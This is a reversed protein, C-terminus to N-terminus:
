PTSSSSRRRWPPGPGCGPWWRSTTATGDDARDEAAFALPLWFSVEPGVFRFERPLVGVITHPVGNVRLQKGIAEDQGAFLRQWLGYGLVVKQEQGPMGDREELVRGRWPRTGLLRFLSPTAVMGDVREAGHSTGLTRGVDDYLAVDEFAAIAQRRDFYDPVSNDAEAVGAGPYANAVWVLREPDPLPLPHLLVSSVVTFVTANAALCLTLTLLVPLAFSKDRLMGRLAVRIERALEAM